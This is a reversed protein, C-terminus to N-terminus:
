ICKLADREECGHTMLDQVPLTFNERHKTILSHPATHQFLCQCYKAFVHGLEVKDMRFGVHCFKPDFRSQQRQFSAILPRLALDYSRGFQSTKRGSEMLSYLLIFMLYHANLALLIDYAWEVVINIEYDSPLTKLNREKGYFPSCGANNRENNSSPLPITLV